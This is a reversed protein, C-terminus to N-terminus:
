SSTSRRTMTTTLSRWPAQEEGSVLAPSRWNQPPLVPQSTKKASFDCPAIVVEIAAM